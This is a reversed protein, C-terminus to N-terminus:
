VTPSSGMRMGAVIHGELRTFKLLVFFFLYAQVEVITKEIYLIMNKMHM